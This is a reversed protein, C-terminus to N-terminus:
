ALSDAYAAQGIQCHASLQWHGLRHRITLWVSLAQHDWHCDAQHSCGGEADDGEGAEEQHEPVFHLSPGLEVKITIGSSTVSFHFLDKLYLLRTEM